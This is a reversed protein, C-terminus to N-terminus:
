SFINNLCSSPPLRLGKIAVRLDNPLMTIAGSLEYRSLFEFKKLLYSLNLTAFLLLNLFLLLRIVIVNLTFSFKLRVENYAPKKFAIERIHSQFNAKILSGISLPYNDVYKLPIRPRKIHSNMIHSGLKKTGIDQLYRPGGTSMQWIVVDCFCGPWKQHDSQFFGFIMLSYLHHYLMEKTNEMLSQIVILDLHDALRNWAHWNPWDVINLPPYISICLAIVESTFISELCKLGIFM